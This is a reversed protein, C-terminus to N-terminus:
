IRSPKNLCFWYKYISHLELLGAKYQYNNRVFGAEDKVVISIIATVSDSSDSHPFLLDLSLNFKLLKNAVDLKQAATFQINSENKVL